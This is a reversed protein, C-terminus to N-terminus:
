AHFSEPPAFSLLFSKGAFRLIDGPRVSSRQFREDNLYCGNRSFCDQVVLNTSNVKARAHEKSVDRSQIRLFNEQGRGIKFIEGAPPLRVPAGFNREEDIELLCLEVAMLNPIEQPAFARLRPAELRLAASGIEILSGDRLPEASRAVAGDARVNDSPLAPCLCLADGFPCVLAAFDDGPIRVDCNESAGVLANRSFPFAKSLGEGWHLKYCDEGEPELPGSFSKEGDETWSPRPPVSLVVPVGAINLLCPSWRELSIQRRRVGNASMANYIGSEIVFWRGGFIQLTVQVDEVYPGDILIDAKGLRRGFRILNSDPLFRRTTWRGHELRHCCLPLLGKLSEERELDAAVSLSTFELDKKLAFRRMAVTDSQNFLADLDM